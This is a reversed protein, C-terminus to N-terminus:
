GRSNRAMTPPFLPLLHSTDSHPLDLCVTVYVTRFNVLLPLKRFIRGIAGPKSPWHLRVLACLFILFDAFPLRSHQFSIDKLRFDLFIMSGLFRESGKPATKLTSKPTLPSVVLRPTRKLYLWWRWGLDHHKLVPTASWGIHSGSTPINTGHKECVHCGIGSIEFPPLQCRIVSYWRSWNTFNFFRSPEAPWAFDPVSMLLTCHLKKESGSSQSSIRSSNRQSWGSVTSSSSLSVGDSKEQFPLTAQLGFGNM